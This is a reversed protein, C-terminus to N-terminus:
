GHSRWMLWCDGIASLRVVPAYNENEDENFSLIHFLIGGLWFCGANKYAAAVIKKVAAMYLEELLCGLETLEVDTDTGIGGVQFILM